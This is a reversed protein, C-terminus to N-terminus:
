EAIDPMESVFSYIIKVERYKQGDITKIEDVVFRSILRNLVVEDLKEITACQRIERIFARVDSEQEDFRRMVLTPEQIDVPMFKM